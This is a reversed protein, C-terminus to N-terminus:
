IRQTDFPQGLLADPLFYEPAKGLLTGDPGIVLAQMTAVTRVSFEMSGIRLFNRSTITADSEKMLLRILQMDVPSRSLVQSWLPNSNERLIEILEPPSLVNNPVFVQPLLLGATILLVVLFASVTVLTYSLTLKWHLQRFINM